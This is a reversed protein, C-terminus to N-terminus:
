CAVREPARSGDKVIALHDELMASFAAPSLLVIRPYGLRKDLDRLDVPLPDEDDTDWGSDYVGDEEDEPESDLGADWAPLDVLRPRGTVGDIELIDLQLAPHADVVRPVSDGPPASM